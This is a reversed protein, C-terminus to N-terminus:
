RAAAFRSIRESEIEVVLENDVLEDLYGLTECLVFFAATQVIRGRVAAAIEIASRPQRVVAERVRATMRAYERLRGDIVARHDTIVDGHGPLILALDMARTAQLSGRYDALPRPRQTEAVGVLPPSLIPVSRRRMVHDAGLMVGRREDVFVTDSRSHGPRHLVRLRRRGFELIDGDSLPRTVDVPAGYGTDGRYVGAAQGEPDIGHRSLLQESFREEAELPEPHDALWDAFPLLACVEAGGRRALHDALGWHDIHQHSVIIRELDEVAHGRSRLGSELAALTPPDIPGTDVLTLPEDEILYVNVPGVPFPTPLAIRWIDPAVEVAEGAGLIEDAAADTM